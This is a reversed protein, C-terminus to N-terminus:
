PLGQAMLVAGIYRKAAADSHACSMLPESANMFVLEEPTEVVALRLSLTTAEEPLLPLEVTGPM